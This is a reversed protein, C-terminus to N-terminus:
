VGNTMIDALICLATTETNGNIGTTLYGDTANGTYFQRIKGEGRLPDTEQMVGAHAMNPAFLPKTITDGLHNYTYGTLSQAYWQLFLMYSTYRGNSSDYGISWGDYTSMAQNWCALADSANGINFSNICRLLARNVSLTTIVSPETSTAYNSTILYPCFQFWLDTSSRDTFTGPFISDDVLCAMANLTPNYTPNLYSSVATSIATARTTDGLRRFVEATLVCQNWLFVKQNGPNLRDIQDVVLNNPLMCSILYNVAKTRNYSM